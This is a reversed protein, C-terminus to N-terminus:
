RFRRWSIAARYRPSHQIDKMGSDPIAFVFQRSFEEFGHGEMVDDDVIEEVPIEAEAVSQRFEGTEIRFLGDIFM